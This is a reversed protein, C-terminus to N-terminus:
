YYAVCGSGLREADACIAAANDDPINEVSLMTIDEISTLTPVLPRLAPGSAQMAKWHSIVDETSVDRYIGITYSLLKPQPVTQTEPKAPDNERFKSMAATLDVPTEGGNQGASIMALATALDASASNGSSSSQVRPGTIAEIAATPQDPEGIGDKIFICLADPNRAQVFIREEPGAYAPLSGKYVIRGGQTCTVKVSDDAMAAGCLLAMACNLVVTGLYKM